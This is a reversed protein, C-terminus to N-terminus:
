VLIAEIGHERLFREIHKEDDVRQVNKPIEILDCDDMHADLEARTDRNVEAAARGYWSASEGEAEFLFLIEGTKKNLYAQEQPCDAATTDSVAVLMRGYDIKLAL